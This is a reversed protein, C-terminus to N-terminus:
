LQPQLLYKELVHAQAAWGEENAEFADARRALPISDFGTEIITLKTGGDAPELMFTVLTMPEKSYDVSTDIAFPHWRYSFVRMPTIEEVYIAVPMGRYKEQTKAVVPDAKTPVIRGRMQTGPAFEGDFEMGFWNGFDKASSIAHWVREQPARLFLSKEIRDTSSM